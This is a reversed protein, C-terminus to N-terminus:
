ILGIRCGCGGVHRRSLPAFGKRRPAGRIAFATGPAPSIGSRSPAQTQPGAFTLTAPARSVRPPSTVATATATAACISVGARRSPASPSATTTTAATAAADSQRQTLMRAQNPSPEMLLIMNRPCDKTWTKSRPGQFQGLSM